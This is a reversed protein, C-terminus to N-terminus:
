ELKKELKEVNATGNIYDCGGAKVTRDRQRFDGVNASRDVFKYYRVSIGEDEWFICDKLVADNSLYPCDVLKAINIICKSGTARNIRDLRLINDKIRNYIMGKGMFELNGPEDSGFLSVLISDVNDVLFESLKGTLM